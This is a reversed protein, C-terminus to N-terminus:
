AVVADPPPAPVALFPSEYLLAVPRPAAFQMPREMAFDVPPAIVSPPLLSLSLPLGSCRLKAILMVPGESRKGDNTAPPENQHSDCSSCCSKSSASRAAAQPVDATRKACCAPVATALSTQEAEASKCCAKAPTNECCSERRAAAVVFAPPKVGNRKAWALKERNTHCCCNRWCSEADKCGCACHQCPFPDGSKKVSQAPLPVGVSCIAVAMCALWGIFRQARSV